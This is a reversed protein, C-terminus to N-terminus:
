NSKLLNLAEQYAPYSKNIAELFARSSITSATIADIQGGDKTVKLEGQSLNKGIVSRNGQESKFWESMKAGLGPTEAMEQVVYNVLNGDSDLGVLISVDGGYGSHSISSIAAGVLEGGKRAPYVALSDGEIFVKVIEETPKNDFPPTVELLSRELADAKSRAITEKTRENVFSLITAAVLCILTLSLLMNPLTSSLKKM